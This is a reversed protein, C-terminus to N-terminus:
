EVRDVMKTTTTTIAYRQMKKKHDQKNGHSWSDLNKKAQIVVICMGNMKCHGIQNWIDIISRM